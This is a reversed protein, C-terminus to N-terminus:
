HRLPLRVSAQGKSTIAGRQDHSWIELHVVGPDGDIGCKTIRGRCWTTDDVLNFRRFEVRLRTLQGADGIWNTLLNVGSLDAETLNVGTLHVGKLDAGRGIEYGNVEVAGVSRASWCLSGRVGSTARFDLIGLRGTERKSHKTDSGPPRVVLYWSGTHTTGSM